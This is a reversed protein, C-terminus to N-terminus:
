SFRGLHSFGCNMAIQSVSEGTKALLLRQRALDMRTTRLFQMPTYNRHKKFARFIANLHYGTGRAIDDMTLPQSAYAKLYDEVDKVQVFSISPSPNLLQVKYNHELGFLLFSILTQEFSAIAAPFELVGGPRNLEGVFYQLLSLLSATQPNTPDFQPAFRISSIKDQDIYASLAAKLVDDKIIYSLIKNNPSHTVKVKEGASLMVGKQRDGDVNTGSINFRSHGSLHLQITHFDLPAEPGAIMGHEYECYNIVSKPLQIGNIITSYPLKSKLPEVSVETFMTSLTERADDVDVGKYLLHHNLLASTSTDTM